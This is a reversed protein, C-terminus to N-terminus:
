RPPQGAAEVLKGGRLVRFKRSRWVVTNGLFSAAWVGAQMIDKLLPLSLTMWPVRDGALRSALYRAAAFRSATACLWVVICCSIWLFDIHLPYRPAVRYVGLSAASIAFATTWLTVNNLISFFYPLPQSVRITRAWRLQHNWVSSWGQPSDCCDVVVPTLAIRAGLRAVRNGLQYDDALYDLLSNFGGISHLHEARVIMVAGLSFDQPKLMNSQLVQSWFDANVAVAEVQM